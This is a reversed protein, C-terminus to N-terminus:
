ESKVERPADQKVHIVLRRTNIFGGFKESPSLLAASLADLTPLDADNSAEFAFAIVGKEPMEKMEMKIM